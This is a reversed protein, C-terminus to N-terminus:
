VAVSLKRSFTGSSGTRSFIFILYVLMPYFNPLSIFLFPACTFAPPHFYFPLASYFPIVCSLNEQLVLFLVVFLILM